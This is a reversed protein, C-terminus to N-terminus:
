IASHAGDGQQSLVCHGPGGVPHGSSSGTGHRNGEPFGGLFVSGWCVRPFLSDLDPSAWFGRGVAPPGRGSRIEGASGLIRSVSCFEGAGASVCKRARRLRLVKLRKSEETLRSRLATPNPSSPLRDTFPAPRRGSSGAAAASKEQLALPRSRDGSLGPANTWM